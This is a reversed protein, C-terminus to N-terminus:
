PLTDLSQFMKVIEEKSLRTKEIKGKMKQHESDARGELKGKQKHYAEELVEIKKPLGEPFLLDDKYWNYITDLFNICIALQMLFFTATPMPEYFGGLYLNHGFFPRSKSYVPRAKDNPHIYSSLWDWIDKLAEGEEVKDKLENIGFRRREKYSEAKQWAEADGPYEHLYEAVVRTEIADREMMMANLILGQRILINAAITDNWFRVGLDVISQDAKSARDKELLFSLCTALHTLAEDSIATTEGLLNSIKDSTVSPDEKIIGKLIKLPRPM